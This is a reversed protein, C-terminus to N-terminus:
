LSNEGRETFDICEKLKVNRTPNTVELKGIESLIESLTTQYIKM